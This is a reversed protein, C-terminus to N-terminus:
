AHYRRAQDMAALDPRIKGGAIDPSPPHAECWAWVVDFLKHIEADTLKALAAVPDMRGMAMAGRLWNVIEDRPPYDNPEM